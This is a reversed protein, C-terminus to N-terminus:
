DIETKNPSDPVRVKVAWEPVYGDQTAAVVLKAKMKKDPWNTGTDTVLVIVDPKYKKEAYELAVVMDTGGGGVFDFDEKVARLVMDQGVQADCTVVPLEGLSKLGQKIVNLAKALCRSTMSGSTDIVAVCKPQHKHVGKLRPMEAVAGQRRNIRRYTFDPNGQQNAAVRAVVSRLNKWPDVTPRLRQKIIRKIGAPITGRTAIWEGDDELQEIKKEVAELLNRERFADWTPDPEDEYDQSIGDAASSETVKFQDTPHAAEPEGTGQDNGPKSQVREGPGAEGSDQREGDGPDSDGQGEGEDHNGPDADGEMGPDKTASPQEEQPKSIISYIQEVLMNPEIEPYMEQMLPLTVCGEPAFDKLGELFEWV